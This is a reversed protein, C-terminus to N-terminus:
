KGGGAAFDLREADNGEAGVFVASDLREILGRGAGASGEVFGAAILKEGFEAVAGIEFFEADFVDADQRAHNGDDAIGSM